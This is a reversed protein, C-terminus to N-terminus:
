HRDEGALQQLQCDAHKNRPDISTSLLKKLSLSVVKLTTLTGWGSGDLWGAVQPEDLLGIEVAESDDFCELEGGVVYEDEIGKVLKGDIEEPLEYDETEENYFASSELLAEYRGTFLRGTAAPALCLYGDM